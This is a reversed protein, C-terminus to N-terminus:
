KTTSTANKLTLLNKKKILNTAVYTKITGVYCVM